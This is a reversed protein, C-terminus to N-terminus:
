EGMSYPQRKCLPDSDSEINFFIYKDLVTDMVNKIYEYTNWCCGSTLSLHRPIICKLNISNGLIM